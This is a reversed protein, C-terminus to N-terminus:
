GIRDQKHFIIDTDLGFETKTLIMTDADSFSDTLTKHHLVYKKTSQRNQRM